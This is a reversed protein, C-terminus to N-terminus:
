RGKKRWRNGEKAGQTEGIPTKKKNEGHVSDAKRIKETFKMDDEIVAIAKNLEVCKKWLEVHSLYCGIEGTNSMHDHDYNHDEM